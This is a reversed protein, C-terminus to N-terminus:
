LNTRTQFKSGYILTGVSAAWEHCSELIDPYRANQQQISQGM